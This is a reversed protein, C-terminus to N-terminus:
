RKASIFRLGLNLTEGLGTDTGRVFNTYSAEINLTPTIQYKAGIGLQTFEQSFENGLDILFYQQTQLYITSNGTPFYSLFASIPLGLSNNAFKENGGKEGFNFQTDVETFIQFKNSAFTYDYFFRTEWVYSEKDLYTGDERDTEFVPIFFSTRVSFTSLKKFPQFAISPAINTFGAVAEGDENKFNLPSFWDQGGFNNSKINFILGFNVRANESFGGFVEFTSTYFNQRDVDVKEGNFTAETESYFNNFWKVDVQGKSLLKSPTYTQINSKLVEGEEEQGLAILSFLAFQIALISKKM